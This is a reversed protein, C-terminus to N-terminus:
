GSLALIPSCTRLTQHEVLVWQTPAYRIDGLSMGNLRRPTHTAPIGKRDELGWFLASCGTKSRSLWSEGALVGVFGIHM